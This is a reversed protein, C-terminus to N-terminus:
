KGYTIYDPIKIIKIFTDNIYYWENNIMFDPVIINNIYKSM